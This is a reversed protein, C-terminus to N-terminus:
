ESRLLSSSARQKNRLFWFYFPLGSCVTAVGWLSSVPREWFTYILIWCSVAVFLGPIWPYGPVLSRNAPLFLAAVAMAGFFVLVFGAYTILSEFTGTLILACTWIGQLCISHIPTDFVPHVQAFSSFFNKDRAMAFYVRPGVFTMASASALISVAMMAAFFAAMGPGLLATAAKAGIRLVGAMEGVPLAYLYLANLAIYLVTVIATGALLARTINKAPDKIEEAIYAAANWGSYSYLVFILSVAAGGLRLSHSEAFHAWTGHGAIFGVIVFLLICGLKILIIGGQLTNGVRWSVSHLVTLAIAALCAVLQNTSVFPVSNLLPSSRSIGPFFFGLYEAFGICAAATPASFGVWFSAWGSLFGWIPGYNQRLYVYEAGSEPHQRSLGAYCLAGCAALIGGITWLALIALSSPVSVAMFGTTTFIGSGIMNAIVVGTAPMWGYKRLM